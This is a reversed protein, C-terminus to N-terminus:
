QIDEGRRERYPCNLKTRKGGGGEGEGGGRGEGGDGGAEGGDEIMEGERGEM